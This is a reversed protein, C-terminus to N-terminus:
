KYKSLWAKLDNYDKLEMETAIKEREQQAPGTFFSTTVIMAKHAHGAKAAGHLRQVVGIGVKKSAAWKKCEVFLLFSTVANKVHAYIDRGGDRTIATLETAFGMDKLIDAVLEEFKRPTLDHLKEPHKALYSKIEDTIDTIRNPEVVDALYMEEEASAASVDSDPWDREATINTYRVRGESDVIALAEGSIASGFWPKDDEQRGELQYEIHIRAESDTLEVELVDFVDLGWGVANTSGIESVVPEYDILDYATDSIKHEAWADLEDKSLQRLEDIYNM